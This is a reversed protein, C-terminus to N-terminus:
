SFFLSKKTEEMESRFFRNPDNLVSPANYEKITVSMQNPRLVRRSIVREKLKKGLRSIASEVGKETRGIFSKNYVKEEQKKIAEQGKLREERFKITDLAAKKQERPM